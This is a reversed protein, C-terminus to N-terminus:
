RSSFVDAVIGSVFCVKTLRWRPGAKMSSGLSMISNRLAPIFYVGHLVRHDGNKAQFVISGVGQIEVKSADGFRVSGRVITYLDSFLERHGTMHHTVSSDLCWGDLKDESSDTNLFAQAQPENLDLDADDKSCLVHEELELFGHALFLTAGDDDVEV